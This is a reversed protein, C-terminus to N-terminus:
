EAPSTPLRFPGYVMKPVGDPGKPDIKADNPIEADCCVAARVQVLRRLIYEDTGGYRVSSCCAVTLALIAAEFDEETIPQRKFFCHYDPGEGQHGVLQPAFGEPAECGMCGGNIVYFDGAANLPHREYLDSM